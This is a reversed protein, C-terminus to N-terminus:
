CAFAPPGGLLRAVDFEAPDFAGPQGCAQMAGPLLPHVHGGRGYLLGTAPDSVQGRFAIGARADDLALGFPEYQNRWLLAPVPHTTEAAPTGEPDLHPFRVTVTGGVHPQERLAVLRDGLYLYLTSLGAGRDSQWKMRGDADYQWLMEDDGDRLSTARM